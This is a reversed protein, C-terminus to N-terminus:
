LKGAVRRRVQEEKQRFKFRRRICGAEGWECLKRSTQGDAGPVRYGDDDGGQVPRDEQRVSNQFNLLILSVICVCM